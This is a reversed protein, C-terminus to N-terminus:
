RPAQAKRRDVGAEDAAAGLAAAITSVAGKRFRSSAPHLTVFVKRPAGALHAELPAAATSAVKVPRGLLAEAATGGLAVVVAAGATELEGELFPRCAAREAPLPKRNDPPRCKVVNTIFVQDRAVGAAALARDLLAGARGVFPAGVRDEEAGPAEGVIVLKAPRPGKGPVVQTRGECLPCRRCALDLPEGAPM